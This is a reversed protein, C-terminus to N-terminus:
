SALAVIFIFVAGVLVILSVYVLADDMTLDQPKSNTDALFRNAQARIIAHSIAALLYLFLHVVWSGLFDEISDWGYRHYQLFTRVYAVVLSVVVPLWLRKARPSLNLAMTPDPKDGLIM